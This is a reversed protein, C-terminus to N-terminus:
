EIRLRYRRGPELRVRAVDTAQLFPSWYDILATRSYVETLRGPMGADDALVEPPIPVVDEPRGFRM